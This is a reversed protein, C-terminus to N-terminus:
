ESKEESWKELYDALEHHGCYRSMETMYRDILHIYVDVDDGCQSLLYKAIEIYGYKCALKFPMYDNANIDAGKEVLYKVIRLRGLRVCAILTADNYVHICTYKDTVCEEFIYKVIELNSYMCAENFARFDDLNVDAGNCILYKVIEIHNFIIAQILPRHCSSNLCALKNDVHDLIYEVMSLDGHRCFLSLAHYDNVNVDASYYILLKTLEISDNRISCKLAYDDKAHICLGETHLILYNVVKIHNSNCAYRFSRYKQYSIDANHSVLYKMANLHGHKCALVLVQDYVSEPSSRVLLEFWITFTVYKVLYQVLIYRDSLKNILRECASFHLRNEIMYLLCSDTYHINTMYENVSEDVQIVSNLSTFYILSDYCLHM